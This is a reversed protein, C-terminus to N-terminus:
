IFFVFMIGMGGEGLLFDSVDENLNCLGVFFSTFLLQLLVITYVKVIFIRQIDSDLYVINDNTLLSVENIKM